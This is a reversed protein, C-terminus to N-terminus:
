YSEALSLVTGKGHALAKQYIHNALGVDEAGMGVPAFLIREQNSTRGPKKGVIVEGLEGYVQDETIVFSGIENVRKLACHVEDVLFKDVHSLIKPELDTFGGIEIVLTGPDIEPGHLLPEKATTAMVVLDAGRVAEAISAAPVLKFSHREQMERIYRDRREPDVDVARVEELSLVAAIANVNSRGQAGAGIVVATKTGSKSLYKAAVASAAGTRAHTILMGDMIALPRGTTPDHLVIVGMTTPLGQAANGYHVNVLKVGAIGKAGLYAPMSNIWGTMGVPRLDMVLKPPCLTFGSAYDRFVEEIVDVTERTDLLERIEREGLFLVEGRRM